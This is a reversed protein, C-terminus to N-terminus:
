GTSRDRRAKWLYFVPLGSLLVAFNALVVWPESVLYNGLLFM